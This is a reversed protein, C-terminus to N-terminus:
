DPFNCMGEAINNLQDLFEDYVNSTPLAYNYVSALLEIHKALVAVASSRGIKTKLDKPEITFFMEPIEESGATYGVSGKDTDFFLCAHVSDKAYTALLTIGENEVSKITFSWDDIPEKRKVIVAKQISFSDGKLAELLEKLDSEDVNGKEEVLKEFDIDGEIKDSNVLVVRDAHETLDLGTDEQIKELIQALTEKSIESMKLDKRNTICLSFNLKKM